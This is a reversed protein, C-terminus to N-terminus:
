DGYKQDTLPINRLLRKRQAADVASQLKAIGEESLRPPIPVGQMSEADNFEDNQTKKPM